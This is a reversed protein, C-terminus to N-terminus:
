GPTRGTIVELRKRLHDKLETVNKYEPVNHVSLDFHLRTGERRYLIPRKGIAHAFGVEYYVNPREGTLDAILFEATRISQLIVDTIVDQHEVDDARLAHIGFHLCMEKIANSVDELEPKKKDMAMLIFATDPDYSSQTQSGAASRAAARAVLDPRPASRVHDLASDFAAAADDKALDLTAPLEVDGQSVPTGLGMMPMMPQGTLRVSVQPNPPIYRRKHIAAEVYRLNFYLSSSDYVILPAIKLKLLNFWHRTEITLQHAAEYHQSDTENWDMEQGKPTRPWNSLFQLVREKLREGADILDKYAVNASQLPGEM